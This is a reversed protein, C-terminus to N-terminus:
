AAAVVRGSGDTQPLLGRDKLIRDYRRATRMSIQMREAAKRPELDQEVRLDAWTNIRQEVAGQSCSVGYGGPAATRWGIDGDHRTMGRYGRRSYLDRRSANRCDKCQPYLGDSTNACRTYRAHSKVEKCRSCRKTATPELPMAPAASETATLGLADLIDAANDGILRQVARRARDRDRAQEAPTTTPIKLIHDDATRWRADSAPRRQITGNM